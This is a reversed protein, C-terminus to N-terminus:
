VGLGIYLLIAITNHLSHMIITSFINDTKVYLAAFAIGLSLYPIIYIYDIYSDSTGLVHLSAFILGSIFIYLYKTFRSKNFAYIADKISKRFILEETFPAHISVSFLMYLPYMKIMSRVMEENNAVANNFFINIIQNSLFMFIFGIIYYKFSVSFNHKFDKFYNKFDENIKKYYLTYIIIMFGIDCAFEYMIKLTNSFKTIDIKFIIIPIYPFLSMGFLLIIFIITPTIKSKNM